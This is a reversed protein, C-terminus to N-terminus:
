KSTTNTTKFKWQKPPIMLCIWNFLEHEKKEKAYVQQMKRKQTHTLGDAFWRLQNYKSDPKISSAEHDNASPALQDFITNAHPQTPGNPGKFCDGMMMDNRDIKNVGNTSNEKIDKSGPTSQEIKEKGKM